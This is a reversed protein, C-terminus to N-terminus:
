VAQIVKRTQLYQYQLIIGKASLDGFNWKQGWLKVERGFTGKRPVIKWGQVNEELIDAM